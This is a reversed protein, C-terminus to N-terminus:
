SKYYIVNRRESVLGAQYLNTWYNFNGAVPEGLLVPARDIYAWDLSNQEQM